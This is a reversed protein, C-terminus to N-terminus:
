RWLASDEYVQVPGLPEPSDTKPTNFTSMKLLQLNRRPVSITGKETKLVILGSKAIRVVELVNGIHPRLESDMALDGWGNLLVCDGTELDTM